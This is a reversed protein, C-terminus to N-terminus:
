LMDASWTADKDLPYVPRPLYQWDFVSLNPSTLGPVDVEHIQEPAFLHGFGARFHGRSKVVISRYDDPDIGFATLYDTSLCQQRESIVVLRVGGLDLVVTRGTNVTMGAVMGYQGVFCGESLTEVRATVDLTESFRSTEESNLTMALQSGEGASFAAEVAAPDYFVALVCDTVGAELFARLITTTNGRGGGGPNDAPDAFVRAPLASDRSVDVALQVAEDLGMMSPQYRERDAWAYVALETALDKARQPDNRTTVIITMGNKPTDAFAFGALVTVNMVSADVHRQGLAILEGYPYGPATLQTVSPAVLPLRVRYSVPREGEFMELMLKAAEEGRQYLDVHPNTRYGILLDTAEMMAESVNAHLDLTGIVPVDPGVIDRILTFVEGDPDHTHTAIAGGHQCVYVGDLPGMVQLDQRLEGLFENFFAEEVAGAPTSGILLAPRDIWGGPSGFVDDMVKYFGCVGLHISPHEARAERTIEEGRFYMHEEFDRRDCPSAFRNSELNFGCIAIKKM